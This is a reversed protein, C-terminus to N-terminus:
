LGKLCTTQIELRERITGNDPIHRQLKFLSVKKEKDVPENEKTM